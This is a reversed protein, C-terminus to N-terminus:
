LSTYRVGTNLNLDARIQTSPYKKLTKNLKSTDDYLDGFLIAEHNENKCAQACATIGDGNDIKHVCLTCSEVTGKGRPRYPKQNSITEHVFSRADYPCALMCYRCGICRHADVLVVGDARKMSANTPCVDVCPPHECHQCMLVLNTVKKTAKDKVKIKKIWAPQQWKNSHKEGGWGNEEACADVCASCGDVCKATDILMGWRKNASVGEKTAFATLTVGSSLTVVGVSAGSLKLFNRRNLDSM